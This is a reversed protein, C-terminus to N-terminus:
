WLFVIGMELGQGFVHVCSCSGLSTTKTRVIRIYCIISKMNKPSTCDNRMLSCLTLFIRLCQIVM